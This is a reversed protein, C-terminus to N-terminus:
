MLEYDLAHAIVCNRLNLNCIADPRKPFCLLHDDHYPDCYLNDAKAVLKQVKLDFKMVVAVAKFHLLISIEDVKIRNPKAPIAQWATEADGVGIPVGDSIEAKTEELDIPLLEVVDINGRNCGM